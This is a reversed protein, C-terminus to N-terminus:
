PADNAGGQLGRSLAARMREQRSLRLQREVSRFLYDYSRDKDGQEQRNYHNIDECLVKMAKVQQFYLFELVEEDPKKPLAKLVMIWTNHFNELQEPKAKVAQLDNLSYVVEATKGTSYYHIITHLLERGRVSRNELM